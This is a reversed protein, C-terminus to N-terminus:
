DSFAVERRNHVLNLAVVAGLLRHVSVDEPALESAKRLMKEALLYDKNDKLAVGAHYYPRPDNPAAAIAQNFAKLAQAPQRRNQHVRGLELYPEVYNPNINIAEVLHHISQDLQGARSLLRGLQYQLFALQNDDLNESGSKSRLARQVAQIAEQIQGDEELTNALASLVKPEDPYRNALDKAVELATKAGRAQHILEIYELNLLLPDSSQTLVKDLLEIAKAPEGMAKLSRASLLLAESNEPEFELINQALALADSPKNQELLIRGRLLKAPTDNASLLIAKEACTAAKELARRGLYAQSLQMWIGAEEPSLEAATELLEIAKSPTEMNTYIDALHQYTPAYGPELQIAKELHSIAADYRESQKLNANHLSLHAALVHWRPENSWRRIAKQISQTALVLDDASSSHNHVIKALLAFLIPTDRRTMPSSLPTVFSPHNAGEQAVIKEIAGHIAVLAQKPKAEALAFALQALVYPHDPYISAVRGAALLDGMSGLCAIQAMINDPEGPLAALAEASQASPCFIGMSRAHWKKLYSQPTDKLLGGQHAPSIGTTEISHLLQGEATQLAFQCEGFVEESLAEAGPAHAIVDMSQCINQYEAQLVLAQALLLHSAPEDPASLAVQRAYKIAPAWLHMELGAKALRRITSCPMDIIPPHYLRSTSIASAHKTSEFKEQARHYIEEAPNQSPSLNGTSVPEPKRALLQSQLALVSPHDPSLDYAQGIEQAALEDKAADLALEARLCHWEIQNTEDATLPIEAHQYLIEFARNPLLLGRALDAALVRASSLTSGEQEAPPQHNQIDLAQEAHELAKSTEGANRLVVAMFSHLEPNDPEFGLATELTDLALLLHERREDHSTEDAESKELLIRAKLMYLRTKSEEILIAQELAKLSAEPEGALYYAEALHNLLDLRSPIESPGGTAEKPTEQSYVQLARELCLAAASADNLELLGMAAQHLDAPSANPTLPPFDDDAEGTLRLFTHHAADMEGMQLQIQGLRVLLPAHDIAQHTARELAQLAEERAAPLFVGARDQLNHVKQAFWILTDIDNPALDRATQASEYANDTLGATDYAECLFRHVAPNDPGAQSAEQLAAVATEIQGLDLAVKGLGLWLRIRWGPDEILRTELAKRYANMAPLLDGSAALVEASLARAEPLNPAIEMARGLYMLARQYQVPNVEGDLDLICRAYDLYAQPESPGAQLVIELPLLAPNPDNLALLVNAYTHAVEPNYPASIFAQELEQRADELHGLRQLTQGLRLAVRSVFAQEIAGDAAPKLLSRANRLAPLAQTPSNEGLYAEGLTLWLEADEPAAQTAANLTEIVKQTPVGPQHRSYIDALALWIDRQEPNDEIAQELIDLADQINGQEAIARAYIALANGDKKNQSLLNQCVQIADEPHGAKLACSAFLQIDNVAPNTQKELIAAREEYASQWHGALELMEALANRLDIRDPALGVAIHAYQLARDLQGASLLSKAMISTADVSGPYHELALQAAKIAERPLGINMFLRALKIPLQMDLLNGSFTSETVQRLSELTQGALHRAKKLDGSHYALSARVYLLRAPQYPLKEPNIPQESFQAEAEGLRNNDILALLFSGLHEASDPDLHNAQEWASLCGQHDNDEAAVQATLAAIEAQISRAIKAAETLIPAALNPQAALRLIEARFLFDKLQRFPKDIQTTDEPNIIQGKRDQWWQSNLITQVAGVALSPRQIFLWRLFDILDTPPVIELLQSLTNAQNHTPAPTSLLAHAALHPRKEKILAALLNLSDRTLGYLCAATTPAINTLSEGLEQWSNIYRRQKLLNLAASGAESLNSVVAERNEAFVPLIDSISQPHDDMTSLIEWPNPHGLSLLSLAAPTYAEVQAKFREIARRGLDTQLENWVIADQRLALIAWSWAVEPVTRKFEVIFNSSMM